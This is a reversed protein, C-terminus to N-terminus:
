QQPRDAHKTSLGAVVFAGGIGTLVLSPFWLAGPSDINTQFSPPSQANKLYLVTVRDGVAYHILGSGSFEVAAAGIPVFQIVPHAGGANLRVVKGEARAAITIFRYTFIASAIAGLLLGVGIIPFLFGILKQIERDSAKM